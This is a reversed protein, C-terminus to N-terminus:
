ESGELDIRCRPQHEPIVRWCARSWGSRDGRDVHASVPQRDLNGGSGLEAGSVQIDESLGRHERLKQRQVRM